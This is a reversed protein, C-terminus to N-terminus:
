LRSQCEVRDSINRIRLMEQLLYDSILLAFCARLGSIASQADSWKIQWQCQELKISQYKLLSSVGALM